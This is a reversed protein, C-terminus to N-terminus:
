MRFPIYHENTTSIIESNKELKQLVDLLASETVNSFRKNQQLNKLLQLYHCGRLNKTKSCLDKLLKIVKADVSKRDHVVYFLDKESEAKYVLGRHELHHVAEKLLKHIAHTSSTVSSQDKEGSPKQNSFIHPVSQSTKSSCDNPNTTIVSQNRTTSRTTCRQNSSLTSADMIPNGTPNKCLSTAIDVLQGVTGLEEIYFSNTSSNQLFDVVADILSDPVSAQLKMKEAERWNFQKDYVDRYLKPLELMRAIERECRPDDVKEFFDASVQIDGRYRKVRGRVHISDGLDLPLMMQVLSDSITLNLFEEIPLSEVDGKPFFPQPEPNPKWCCCNIVGTGDDVGYIFFKHKETVKVVIGFIDVKCIQHGNYQLIET